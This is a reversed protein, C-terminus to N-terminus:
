DLDDVVKDSYGKDWGNCYPKNDPLPCPPPNCESLIKEFLPRNEAKLAYEYISWTDIQIYTTNKIIFFLDYLM